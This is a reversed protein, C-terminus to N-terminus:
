DYYNGYKEILHAYVVKQDKDMFGCKFCFNIECQTCQIRNCGSEKEILVNCKPCSRTLVSPRCTNCLYQKINQLHEMGNDGCEKPGYISPIECRDCLVYWNKSDEMTKNIMALVKKKTAVLRKVVKVGDRCFPCTIPSMIIGGKNVVVIQPYCEECVLKDCKENNCMNVMKIIPNESYCINCVAIENYNFTSILNAIDSYKASEHFEEIFQIIYRWETKKSIDTMTKINEIGIKPVLKNVSKLYNVNVIIAMIEDLELARYINASLKILQIARFNLANLSIGYIAPIVHHLAFNTFSTQSLKYLEVGLEPYFDKFWSNVESHWLKSLKYLNVCERAGMTKFILPYIDLYNKGRLNITHELMYEINDFDFFEINYQSSYVVIEDSEGVYTVMKEYRPLIFQPTFRQIISTYLEYLNNDVTLGSKRYCYLFHYVCCIKVLDCGVINDNPDPYKIAVAHNYEPNDYYHSYFSDEYAVFVVRIPFKIRNVTINNSQISYVIAQGGGLNKNIEKVVQFFSTISYKFLNIDDVNFIKYTHNHNCRKFIIQSTDLSAISLKCYLSEKKIFAVKIFTNTRCSLPIIVSQLRQIFSPAYFINDHPVLFKISTKHSDFFGVAYSIIDDM